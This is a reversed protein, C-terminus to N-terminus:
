LAAAGDVASVPHRLVDRVYASQGRDFIYMSLECLAYCGRSLSEGKVNVVAESSLYRDFRDLIVGCERCLDSDIFGSEYVKWISHRSVVDGDQYFFRIDNALARIEQPDGVGGTFEM